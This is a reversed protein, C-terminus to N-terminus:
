LEYSCKNGLMKRMIKYLEGRMERWDGIGRDNFCAVGATGSLVMKAMEGYDSDICFYRHTHYGNVCRGGLWQEYTYLYQNMNKDSRFMTCSDKMEKGHKEAVSKVVSLLMPAYSHGDRLIVDDAYKVGNDESAINLSNKCTMAFVDAVPQQKEVCRTVPKGNVFFDEEGMQSTAIMDDNCYIFTESLGEINHLWMEITCSNYTPLLESPIIDKHLVIHVKSTDLWFPIQSESSLILHVKRVFPMFKSIGRFFYRELDWSRVRGDIKSDRGANICSERYLRLWKEDNHFVMPVVIDIGEEGVRVEDNPVQVSHQVTTTDNATAKKPTRHTKSIGDKKKVM